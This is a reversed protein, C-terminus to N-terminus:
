DLKRKKAKELSLESALKTIKDELQKYKELSVFIYVFVTILVLYLFIEKSDAGVKEALISTLGMGSVALFGLFSGAITFLRALQSSFPRILGYIFLIAFLLSFLSNLVM